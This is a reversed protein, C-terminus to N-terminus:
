RLTTCGWPVSMSADPPSELTTAVEMIAHLAVASTGSVGGRDEGDGFNDHQIANVIV